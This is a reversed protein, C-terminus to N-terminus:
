PAHIRDAVYCFTGDSFFAVAGLLREVGLSSLDHQELFAGDADHEILQNQVQVYLHGNADTRLGAPGGINKAEGTGWMWVGIAVFTLFIVLVALLPHVKSNM